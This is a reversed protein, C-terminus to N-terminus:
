KKIVQETIYTGDGTVSLQYIGQSLSGPLEFIEATSGGRHSITKSVLRQGTTNTLSVRYIGASMNNMQLGVSNGTVPNPYISIGGTAKGINVKVVLSYKIEGSQGIIKIRYYNLGNEPAPDFLSYNVSGGTNNRGAINGVSSFQVGTQSREVDYSDINVEQESRWEVQVGTNKRYARVNILTIPLLTVQAFTAQNFVVNTLGTTTVFNNVNDRASPAYLTWSSGNYLNLNLLNENLGNLEADQYYFTIDGTFAPLNSLFHYVRKIYTTPSAPVTLTDRTITNAGTITYAAVPKLSFSDVSLTTGGSVLVNAGASIYLSSQSFGFFSLTTFFILSIIKKICM